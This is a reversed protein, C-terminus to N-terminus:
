PKQEGLLEEVARHAQDIASDTYAAAGADSNAIAIRGFRKRGIEHPAGGHPWDPDFLPNYEYAYGHPWRNVTIATIDKNPDFGGPGLIRGLQNRIKEKFTELSTNLIDYHGARHQDREPLGPRTPTRTMHILMPEDPAHPSRYGGIDVVQNLTVSSFYSGPAHVSAIGLKKLATWNRLAVSAYILPIKVAYHLAQKQPEPLEPCLYPIVMNYCALVCSRARLSFVEGARSYAIEVGASSAPDGVNRVRVAISGLRIRVPSQPQDLKSYDLRATVADEASDGPLSAPVLCRVLLRAVSANGDPFHFKYSGGDAYGAATYGMHPASGPALRLGQFGPFDFAWVDLASVADIGVGWEGHTRAQYFPIVGADAKVVNLLYDRYSMRSLRSKKEASSLGPLYDTKAEEIRAIDRRANSSLPAEALRQAWSTGASQVILKDAGFTERDLFIGHRLGLKQYFSRDAYKRAMAVPDIGLTKILGDAVASYPHPSDIEYTGGHMLEVRGGSQFENRKAHGGFDDHNDLILIRASKHKALYFHAAALGSIGGGVIVLDYVEGLNDVPRARSWFNGDRLQHAIEFSGAHNGRLGTLAPPYYGPADQAAAGASANAAVVPLLGAAIAGGAAIPAGNLFDRRTIRGHGDPARGGQARCNSRKM